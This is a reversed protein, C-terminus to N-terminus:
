EEEVHFLLKKLQDIHHVLEEKKKEYTAASRPLGKEQADKQMKHLLSRREEMTRLAIWLTTEMSESQKLLLDNESYAHGIHCRYRNIVDNSIHWLSGGCDPCSYATQIGIASLQEAGVAMKEAIRAEAIVDAPAAIQERADTRIINNIVNGMEHIPICYDASLHHLVSEPMSRYEAEAPDQVICTGGSRKIAWMGSTGDDLMGTLIVGITRTTYAAAASRFLVDISPRWRNERPGYGIIVANKKVMLHVNPPAIYISARELQMSDAGLRCPLSTQEQIQQVIFDGTSKDSLHLVVLVAADLDPPFLAVLESVAKLGGASAGITIIFTPQGSM